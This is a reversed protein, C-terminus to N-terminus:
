KGTKVQRNRVWGSVSSGTVGGRLEVTVQCMPSRQSTESFFIYVKSTWVSCEESLLPKTCVIFLSSMVSFATDFDSSDLFVDTNNVQAKQRNFVM